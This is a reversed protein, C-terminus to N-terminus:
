GADRAGDEGMDKTGRRDGMATNAEDGPQRLDPRAQPLPRPGRRRAYARAAPALPSAPALQAFRLFAGRADAPRELATAYLVGLNYHAMVEIPNVALARRLAQEARPAEGALRHVEGLAAWFTANGPQLATLTEFLGAAQAPDGSALVLLALNLYADPNTPEVRTIHRYAAAATARAAPLQAAAVALNYTALVSGPEVVLAMRFAWMARQPDPRGTGMRVYDAAPLGIVPTEPRDTVLRDLVRAITVARAPRADDGETIAIAALRGQRDFLGTGLVAPFDLTFVGEAATPAAEPQPMVPTGEPGGVLPCGVALLVPPSALVHEPQLPPTRWESTAQLRLVAVGLEDDTFSIEAPVTGFAPVSVFVAQAGALDAAATLVHGASGFLVGSHMIDGQADVRTVCVVSAEAREYVQADTLPDGPFVAPPPPIRYPRPAPLIGTLALPQPPMLTQAAGPAATTGPATAEADPQAPRPLPQPTIGFVAVAGVVLSGCGLLLALANRLRQSM